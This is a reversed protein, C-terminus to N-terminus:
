TRPYHRDVPALDLNVRIIGYIGLNVIVSSLLASVNTPAVPHALPLWSGVPVLGAKVAFGFFSLLFVAWGLGQGLTPAASGIAAFDFTGAVGAILILAIAVAITGGESMALMVFGAHSSEQQERDYNVLLYSAISM